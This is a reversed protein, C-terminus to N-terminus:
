KKARTKLIVAKYSIGIVGEKAPAFFFSASYSAQMPQYCERDSRGFPEYTQSWCRGRAMAIKFVVRRLIHKAYFHAKWSNMSLVPSAAFVTASVLCVVSHLLMHAAM